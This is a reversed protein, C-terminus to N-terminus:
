LFPSIVFILQEPRWSVRFPKRAQRGIVTLCVLYYFVYQFLVNTWIKKNKERWSKNIQAFINTLSQLAKNQTKATMFKPRENGYKWGGSYYLYCLNIWLNNAEPHAEWLDKILIFQVPYFPDYMTTVRQSILSPYTNIRWLISFRFVYCISYVLYFFFM